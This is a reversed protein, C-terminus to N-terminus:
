CSLNIVYISLTHLLTDYLRVHLSVETEGPKLLLINDDNEFPIIKVIPHYDFRRKWLNSKGDMDIFIEGTVSKEEPMEEPFAPAWCELHTANTTGNCVKLSITNSIVAVTVTPMILFCYEALSHPQADM